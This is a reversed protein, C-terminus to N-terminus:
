GETQCAVHVPMRYYVLVSRKGFIEWLQRLIEDFIHDKVDRPLLFNSHRTHETTGLRRLLLRVRKADDKHKLGINFIDEYRNFWSVFILRANFEYHFETISNAITDAASEEPVPISSKIIFQRMLTEMIRLQVAEFLAPQQNLIASLEM